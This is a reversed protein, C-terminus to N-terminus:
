SSPNVNRKYTATSSQQLLCHTGTGSLKISPDRFFEAASSFEVAIIAFCILASFEYKSAVPHLNISSIVPTVSGHLWRQVTAPMVFVFPPGPHM